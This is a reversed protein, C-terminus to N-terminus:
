NEWNENWEEEAAGEATGNNADGEQAEEEAEDKVEQKIACEDGEGGNPQIEGRMSRLIYNKEKSLHRKGNLHATMQESCTVSTKCIDCYLDPQIPKVDKTETVEDEEKTEDKKLFKKERRILQQLRREMGHQLLMPNKPQKRGEVIAKHSKGDYHSEGHIKSTIQVDCLECYLERARLPNNGQQQGPNQRGVSGNQTLWKKVSKQHAKSVYHVRSLLFSEFSRGCLGCNEPEILDFIAKPLGKLASKPVGCRMLYKIAPPEGRPKNGPPGSPGNPGFGRGLIVPPPAMPGRPFMHPPGMPRGRPGMMPPRMLPGPPGMMPGPPGDPGSFLPGPGYGGRYDGYADNYQRNRLARDNRRFKFEDETWSDDTFDLDFNMGYTYGYTPFDISIPLYSYFSVKPSCSIVSVLLHGRLGRDNLDDETWDDNSFSDDFNM